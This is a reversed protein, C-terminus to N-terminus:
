QICELFGKLQTGQINTTDLSIWQTFYADMTELEVTCGNFPCGRYTNSKWSSLTDLSCSNSVIFLKPM